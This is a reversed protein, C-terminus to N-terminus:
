QETVEQSLYLKWADRCLIDWNVLQCIELAECGFCHPRSLAKLQAYEDITMEQLEKEYITMTKPKYAPRDSISRGDEPDWSYCIDEHRCCTHGMDDLNCYRCNTCYVHTESM